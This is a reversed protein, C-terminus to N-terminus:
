IIKYSKIYYDVLEETEVVNHISDQLVQQEAAKLIEIYQLLKEDMPIKISEYAKGFTYPNGMNCSFSMNGNPRVALFGYSLSYLKDESNEVIMRKIQDYNKINCDDIRGPYKIKLAEVEELFEKFKVKPVILEQNRDAEDKSKVGLSGIPTFKVMCNYESLLQKAIDKIEPIYENALTIQVYTAIEKKDFFRLAKLVKDYSDRGAIKEHEKANGGLISTFYTNLCNFQALKELREPTMALSNSAFSVPIELNEIFSLIEFIDTRVIPEGGTIIIYNGGQESFEKIIHKIQETSMELPKHHMGGDLYCHRCHQNCAHTVELYLTKIPLYEM